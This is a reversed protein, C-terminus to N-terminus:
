RTAYGHEGAFQQIRKIDADALPKDSILITGYPITEKLRAAKWGVEQHSFESVSDATSHQFTSIVRDIIQIEESSFEELNPPRMAVARHQSKGSPLPVVKISLDGSQVMEDKVRLINVPVPGNQLKQYDFGTIPAGLLAYALADSYFLMKNLKTAGFAPLASCKESIYLLVEEFKNRNPQWNQM